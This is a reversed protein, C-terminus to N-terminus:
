SILKSSVKKRGDANTCFSTENYGIKFYYEVGFQAKCQNDSETQLFFIQYIIIWCIVIAIALILSWIANFILNEKKFVLSDM